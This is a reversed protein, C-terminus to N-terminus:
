NSGIRVCIGKVVLDGADGNRPHKGCQEEAIVLVAVVPGAEAVAFM